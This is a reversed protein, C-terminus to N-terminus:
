HILLEFKAYHFIIKSSRLILNQEKNDKIPGKYIKYIELQPSCSGGYYCCKGVASKHLKYFLDARKRKREGFVSGTMLIDCKYKEYEVRDPERGNEVAPDISYFIDYTNIGLEKKYTEKVKPFAFVYDAYPALYKSLTNFYMPDDQNYYIIIVGRKKLELMMEPNWSGGGHIIFAVDPKEKYLIEVLLKKYWNVKKTDKLYDSSPKYPICFPIVKHGKKEFAPIYWDQEIGWQHEYGKVTILIKM